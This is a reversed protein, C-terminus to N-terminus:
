AAVGGSHLVSSESDASARTASARASITIPPAPSTDWGDAARSDREQLAADGVRAAACLGAVLALVVIWIALGLLPLM